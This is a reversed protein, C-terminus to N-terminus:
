DNFDGSYVLNGNGDSLSVYDVAGDGYFRFTIGKLEELPSKYDVSLVEVRDLFFVVRKNHIEVTLNRWYSLDQYLKSLDHFNGNLGIEGVEATLHKQHCNPDAFTISVRGHKTVLKIRAKACENSSGVPLNKFRTSFSLHDSLVDFNRINRFEVMYEDDEAIMDENFPLNMVGGGIIEGSSGLHYENNLMYDWGRTVVHIGVCAVREGGAIIKVAYYDPLHFTNRFLHRYKELPILEGDEDDYFNRDIFFSTAKLRTVDYYFNAEHPAMGTLDVSTFVVKRKNLYLQIEPYIIITGLIVAPILIVILIWPALNIFRISNLMGSGSSTRTEKVRHNVKFDEWDKYGLYKALADKTATQPNYIGKKNFIRRLTRPSIIIGSSEQIYESLLNFNHNTWESIDGWILKDRILKICKNLYVKENM